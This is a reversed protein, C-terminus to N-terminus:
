SSIPSRTPAGPQDAKDSKQLTALESRYTEVPGRELSHFDANVLTSPQVTVIFGTGNKQGTFRVPETIVLEKQKVFAPTATLLAEGVEVKQELGVSPM